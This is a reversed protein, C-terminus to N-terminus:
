TDRGWQEHMTATTLADFTKVIAERALDAFDLVGELGPSQPAGRGTLNLRFAPHGTSRNTVPDCTVHLRGAVEQDDGPILFVMRETRSELAMPVDAPASTTLVDPLHAHDEWEEGSEIHNIYTVEVQQPDLREGHVSEVYGDVQRYADSFASRREPWRGYQTDPGVKIWNAALWNRQLQILETGEGSRMWLRAPASEVLSLEIVPKVDFREILPDYPPRDELLPHSERFRTDWILGPTATTWDSVPSYAVAVVVETLPPRQYSPLDLLRMRPDRDAVVVM